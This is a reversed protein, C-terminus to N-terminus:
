QRYDHQTQGISLCVRNGRRCVALPSELGAIGRLKDPVSKLALLRYAPVPEAKGKVRVPELAEFEFLPKTLRHTDPGVLIDSRESVDELRSAVNVTDGMVSYEQRGHTGIGGAIVLGTNIGFHLGLDTGRKANFEALADMMELAARLAREPDNEHAIPAGFLAMIADGIFKDVTGEYKEIIPVLHDFCANMLDRVVEPDMTEALTTFGLIDAFMVTVLRREGKLGPMPAEAKTLAALKKRMPALAAEVTADDLIDRQEELAAIAQELEKQETM